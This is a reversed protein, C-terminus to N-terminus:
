LRRWGHPIDRWERIDNVIDIVVSVFVVFYDFHSLLFSEVLNEDLRETLKGLVGDVKDLFAGLGITFFESGNGSSRTNAKQNHSENSKEDLKNVNWNIVDKNSVLLTTANSYLTKVHNKHM